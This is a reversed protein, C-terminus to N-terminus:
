TPAPRRHPVLTRLLPLCRRDLALSRLLGPLRRACGARRARPGLASPAAAPPLLRRSGPGVQRRQVRQHRRQPEPRHPLQRAPLLAAQAAPPAHTPVPTRPRSRAHLPIPGPHARNARKTGSCPRSALAAWRFQYRAWKSCLQGTSAFSGGIIMQHLGAAPRLAPAPQVQCLVSCVPVSPTLVATLVCFFPAGACIEFRAGGCARRARTLVGRSIGRARRSLVVLAARRVAARGRRAWCDFFGLVPPPRGARACAAGARLRAPMRVRVNWGGAFCPASFDDYYPHVKFGHYAAFHDLGWEWANGFVDYFGKESAPLADVPSHSGYALQLNFGLKAAADAGSCQMALDVNVAADVALATAPGCPSSPTSSAPSGAGSGEGEQEAAAGGPARHADSRDRGSRILQHEAETIVRYRVLQGDRETAWACYAMAEHYNVDM